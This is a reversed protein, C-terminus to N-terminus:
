APVNIQNSAKKASKEPSAKDLLVHDELINLIRGTADRQLDILQYQMEFMSGFKMILQLFKYIITLIMMVVCWVILFVDRRTIPLPSIFEFIFIGGAFLNSVWLFLRIIIKKTDNKIEEINKAHQAKITIWTLLTGWGLSIVLPIIMVAWTTENSTLAM